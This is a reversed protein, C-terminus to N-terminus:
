EVNLLHIYHRNSNNGGDDARDSGNSNRSDIRLLLEQDGSKIHFTTIGHALDYIGLGQAVIRRM